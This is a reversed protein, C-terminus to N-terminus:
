RRPQEIKWLSRGGSGFGVRRTAIVPDRSNQRANVIQSETFEESEGAAIVEAAPVEGQDDAHETIYDVLFTMVPSRRRRSRRADELMQDVSRDAMGTFTFKGTSTPGKPTVVVEPTITYTLSPLDIRGCSNKQQTFVCEDGDRAFVIVARPVDKFAGSGSIRSLADIGTAKNFHAIGVVAAGTQETMGALPELATRVHRSANADLGAGLTSMLPDIVVLAVEHESIAQTLLDVDEPLSLTVSAQEQAVVEVRAVRTMDAGAAILRPALTHKWSDETALYFVRKPVGYHAGPLTGRTVRAALWIGFSSKGTGERGAAITIMACPIRGDTEVEPPTWERGEVVSAIDGVPTMDPVDLSSGTNRATVDVWLWDVPEPEIEAAWTIRLSREGNDGTRAAEWDESEWRNIIRRSEAEAKKSPPSPLALLDAVPVGGRYLALANVTWTKDFTRRSRNITTTDRLEDIYTDVWPFDSAKIDSLAFEAAPSLGHKLALDLEQRTASKIKNPGKKATPSPNGRERAWKDAERVTPVLSAVIVQRKVLHRVDVVRETMSALAKRPGDALATSPIVSAAHDCYLQAAPGAQEERHVADGAEFPNEYGVEGNTSVSAAPTSTSDPSTM